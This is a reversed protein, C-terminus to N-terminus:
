ASLPTSFGLDPVSTKNAPKSNRQLLATIDRTIVVATAALIKLDLLFSRNRVYWADLYFRQQLQQHHAIPGRLGRSQALGTIGPKSINRLKYGPLLRGFAACDAHMHPRPGIISMHGCLVNFFQPLEDLGSRRLFHGIFTIRPDDAAAPQAHAEANVLMTRLKLCYFSRGLFGVRKQIFFVPGKSTCKILLALLPLLWSLLGLIILLSIAVDFCRKAALYFRQRFYIRLCLVPRLTRRPSAIMLVDTDPRADVM